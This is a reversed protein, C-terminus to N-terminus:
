KMQPLLEKTELDLVKNGLSSFTKPLHLSCNTGFYSWALLYNHLAQLWTCVFLPATVSGWLPTNKDKPTARISKSPQNNIKLELSTWICLSM